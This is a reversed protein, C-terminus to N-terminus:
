YWYWKQHVIDKCISLVRGIISHSVALVVSTRHSQWSPLRAVSVAFPQLPKTNGWYNRMSHIFIRAWSKTICYKDEQKSVENALSGRREWTYTWAPGFLAPICSFIPEQANWRVGTSRHTNKGVVRCLVPLEVFQPADAAVVWRRAAPGWTSIYSVFVLLTAYQM